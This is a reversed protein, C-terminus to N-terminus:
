VKSDLLTTHVVRRLKAGIDAPDGREPTRVHRDDRPPSANAPQEAAPEVPPLPDRDHSTVSPASPATVPNALLPRDEAAVEDDARPTVGEISVEIPAASPVEEPTRRRLPTVILAALVLVHLAGAALLATTGPKTQDESAGRM